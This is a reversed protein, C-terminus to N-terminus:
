AARHGDFVPGDPCPRVPGFQYGGDVSGVLFAQAGLKRHLRSVCMTVATECHWETGSVLRLLDRRAFAIGPHQALFSLLDFETTTLGLNKPGSWARHSFPDVRLSGFTLEDAGGGLADFCFGVGRVTAIM